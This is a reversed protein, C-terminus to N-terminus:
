ACYVTVFASSGKLLFVPKKPDRFLYSVFQSVSCLGFLVSIKFTSGLPIMNFMSFLHKHDHYPLPRLRKNIFENHILMFCFDSFNSIM